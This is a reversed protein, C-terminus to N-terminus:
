YGFVFCVLFEYVIMVSKKFVVLDIDAVQRLIKWAKSCTGTNNKALAYFVLYNTLILKSLMYNTPRSNTM